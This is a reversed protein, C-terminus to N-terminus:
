KPQSGEREKELTKLRADMDVQEISQGRLELVAAVAERSGPQAAFPEVPGRVQEDGFLIARLFWNV